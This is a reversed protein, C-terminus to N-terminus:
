RQALEGTTGIGAQYVVYKFLQLLADLAPPINEMTRNMQCFLEKWAKDVSELSSTKDYLDVTFRKVSTLSM